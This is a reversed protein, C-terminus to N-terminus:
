SYPGERSLSGGVTCRTHETEAPDIGALGNGRAEPTIAQCFEVKPRDLTGTAHEPGAESRSLMGDATGAPRCGRELPQSPSESGVEGRDRTESRRRSPTCARLKGASASTSTRRRASTNLMSRFGFGAGMVFTNGFLKEGSEESSPTQPISYGVMGFFGNSMTWRYEAEGYVLSEGRFRGQPYGRGARGYTDTGTAPLDLDPRDGGTVFYGFCFALKHRADLVASRLERADYSPPEMLCVGLFDKFFM